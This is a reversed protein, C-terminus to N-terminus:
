FEKLTKIADKLWSDPLREYIYVFSDEELKYNDFEERTYSKTYRDIWGNGTLAVFDVGEKTKVILYVYEEPRRHEENPDCEEAIIMGEKVNIVSEFTAKYYGVHPNTKIDEEMKKHFDEIYPLEDPILINEGSHLWMKASKEIPGENEFFSYTMPIKGYKEFNKFGMLVDSCALVRADEFIKQREIAVNRNKMFAGIKENYIFLLLIDANM